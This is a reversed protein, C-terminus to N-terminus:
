EGLERRLVEGVGVGVSVGLLHIAEENTRPMWLEQSYMRAGGDIRETLRHITYGYVRDGAERARGIPNRGKYLPLLSSHVNFSLRAQDYLYSPLIDFWRACIVVDKPGAIPKGPWFRVSADASCAAELVPGFPFLDSEKRYLVAEIRYKLEPRSRVFGGAAMLAGAGVWGHGYVIIRGM